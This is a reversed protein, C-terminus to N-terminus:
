SKDDDAEPKERKLMQEYESEMLGIVDQMKPEIDQMTRTLDRVYTDLGEKSLRHKTVLPDVDVDNSAAVDERSKATPSLWEGTNSSRETVIQWFDDDYDQLNVWSHCSHEGRDHGNYSKGDRKKQHLDEIMSAVGRLRMFIYSNAFFMGFMALLVLQSSSLGALFGVIDSVIDSAIGLTSSVVDDIVKVDKVDKVDKVSENDSSESNSKEDSDGSLFEEKTTSASDASLPQQVTPHSHQWIEV